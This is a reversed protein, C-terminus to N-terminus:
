VDFSEDLLADLSEDFSEDRTENISREFSGEFEEDFWDDFVEIARDVRTALVRAAVKRRLMDLYSMRVQGSTAHHGVADTQVLSDWAAASAITTASSESLESLVDEISENPLRAGRRHGRMATPSSFLLPTGAQAPLPLPVCTDCTLLLTEMSSYLITAGGPMVVVQGPLDQPLGAQADVTLQDEGNGGLLVLSSGLAPTVDFTDDGDNGLIGGALSGTDTVVFADSATGGQLIEVNSFGGGVDSAQGSDAGDVTYSSPVNNGQLRDVGAQGDISGSLSGGSLWFHDNQDGGVLNEIRTFEAIGVLTGADTGDIVFQHSTGDPAVLTDSGGAGDLGGSSSGGAQVQFTDNDAGGVLREIGAFTTVTLLTGSDPGTLEFTSAVDDAQLTDLGGFVDAIGGTLTGGQIVFTDDGLGGQLSEISTFMTVGGANGSDAGTVQFQTSVFGAQLTDNGGLGDIQGVFPQEFLIFTDDLANGTLSEVGVFQGLGTAFGHFPGLVGFTNAVNDALFQDNGGEGRFTGSLTGGTLQLVDDQANGTLNEVDVFSAIGTASGSNTGTVSFLNPVNDGVFTDDGLGGDVIGTLTAGDLVFRDDRQNGTLNEISLFSGLRTAIGADTSTVVFETPVDAAVLTDSGAQGDVTGTLSGLNLEFRDSQANGTLNEIRLFAGVGTATGEDDALLTFVNPVNDGTLTDDGAGGDVTGALTGGALTFQDIGAGGTLNEVDVFTGIGTATGANIGTVTWTRDADDGLITDNDAGGAIVGSVTGGQRFDFTDDGAGSDIGGTLQGGPLFLFTDDGIGGQLNEIGTFEVGNLSGTNIGSIIWLNTGDGSILTDNGAGGILREIHLGPHLVENAGDTVLVQSGITVTLDITVASFDLVDDTGEGAFEWVVNNGFDDGFEYSDNGKGGILIDNGGLGLLRDDGDNGMLVNDDDSGRITDDFLTGIVNEFLGPLPSEVTQEPAGWRAVVPSTTFMPPTALDVTVADPIRQFDLTDSGITEVIQDNDGPNGPVFVYTDDGAAGQMIDSGARGDLLNDRENGILLDDGEGGVMQELFLHQDFENTIVIRVGSGPRQHGAIQNTITFVPSAGSLDVTVPEDSALGDFGKEALTSFYLRDYIGEDWRENTGGDELEVITDTETGSDPAPGFYYSDNRLQGVLLDDGAMGFLHDDDGLSLICPNVVVNDGYMQDNGDMGYMWDSGDPLLTHMFNGFDVESVTQNTQSITVVHRGTLPFSLAYDDPVVERVSYTGPPVNTFSYNGNADTVRFPEGPGLEGDDNLDLYITFGALGPEAPDRDGGCDQDHFKTGEIRGNRFNGFDRGYVNEGPELTVIYADDPGQLLVTAGPELPTAVALDLKGDANLDSAVLGAPGNATSETMPFTFSRDANAFFIKLQDTEADSVILDPFGDGDLDAAEMGRPASLQGLVLPTAAFTVATASSTGFWVSVTGGTELVAVDRNGDQDFDAILLDTTLESVPFKAVSEFTEDTLQQWVIVTNEKRDLVVLDQRGDHNMDAAALAAPETMSLVSQPSQLEGNGDNTMWAVIGMGPLSIAVDPYTDGNFDAVALGAPTSELLYTKWLAPLGSDDNQLTVVAGPEVLTVVLDLDGDGDLDGVTMQRPIGGLAVSGALSYQGNGDNHLVVISRGARDLLALDMDDDDDLDIAVVDMPQEGALYDEGDFTVRPGTQTFGAQPEERVVYTGGPLDMFWYEGARNTETAPEGEDRQGNNNLDLYITFGPVGRDNPGRVGDGEFDLYKTGHIGGRLPRNGFNRERVEAGAALEVIHVGRGNILDGLVVVNDIWFEQGGIAVDDISGVLQLFGLNDTVMSVAVSVGGLQQGNLSSLNGVISLDNNVRLNVSGGGDFFGLLLGVVQQGFDFDVLANNTALVTNTNGNGSFLQPQAFGTTIVQGGVNFAEVSAQAVWGEAATTDFTAGVPFFDNPSLDEFPFVDDERVQSTPFTQEWGPQLVEGVTYVGPALNMFWYEGDPGTLERPEDPDLQGNENLDLYITWGPLGSENADRRGNGNADLWKTGHISGDQPQNGFDVGRATENRELFVWHSTTEIYDLGSTGRNISLPKMSAVPPTQQLDVTFYTDTQGTSLLGHLLGDVPSFDIAGFIMTGPPPDLQVVTRVEGTNRDFQLIQANQRLGADLLYIEGAANIAIGSLDQAQPIQAVTTAASVTPSCSLLQGICGGYNLQARFLRNAQQSNNGSVFYADLLFDQQNPNFSTPDFALDGEGIAIPIVATANSLILQGVGKTVGRLEEILLLEGAASVGYIRDDVPSVQIGALNNEMAVVRNRDIRDLVPDLQFVAHDNYSAALWHNAPYTQVYSLGVDERVVYHNAPLESFEYNGGADTIDYPESREVIAGGIVETVIDRQGNNNLDLYIIVGAIPPEFEDRRGNGNTDEWKMGRIVSSGAGGPVPLCLVEDCVASVAALVNVEHPTATHTYDPGEIVLPGPHVATPEATPRLVSTVQTASPEVTVLGADAGPSFNGSADLSAEFPGTAPLVPLNGVYQQRIVYLDRFDVDGDPEFDFCADYKGYGPNGLNPDGIQSHFAFSFNVMDERDVTGNDNCDGPIRERRNGFNLRLADDGGDLVVLHRKLNLANPYVQQWNGDQAEAVLYTGPLLGTFLYSGAENQPTQPNDGSTITWPETPQQTVPDINLEGNMDLDLYIRFGPLGPENEDQLGNGNADLWKRGGITVERSNAFDLGEAAEGAALTVVHRYDGAAGPLSQVWDPPLLERVVYTGPVLGTFEYHGAENEPTSPDDHLTVTSPEFPELIGNNNLDLYITWGGLGVDGSPKSPVNDNVTRIGDANVDLWKTGSISATRVNGFDVRVIQGGDSAVQHSGNAPYVQSWGSQIVERVHYSGPLLDTFRYQGSEDVDETAPNDFSTVATPEIPQGFENRDLQGNNNLDLYVTWNGLGPEDAERQGNANLDHWKTGSIEISPANGFNLGLASSGSTLTVRHERRGSDPDPDPSTALWGDQMLEAVVYDGPVLGTFQYAGTADTLTSPEGDDLQGNQDLDLYITWGPLGDAPNLIGDANPDSMKRGAIRGLRYNGFDAGTIDDGSELDFMHLGLDAPGPFSQLWGGPLDEAVVYVGPVLNDFEYNGDADTFTLPEGFDFQRNLNSDLYIPWGAVGPESADRIGDANLDEFKTGVISGLKVNGFDIQAWTEAVGVEILHMGSVPATPQWGAQVVEIVQYTGPAVNDFRYEGTVSDTMAPILDIGNWLLIQWDGLVQDEPDRVGNGNHDEWKVGTITSLEINGFDVNRAIEVDEPQEGSDLALTYAIITQGDFTYAQAQATDGSDLTITTGPLPRTANWGVQQVESVLYIGQELSEVNGGVRKDTFSYLGSETFPDIAGDENLDISSTVTTALLNGEVDRLEITWGDLGHEDPDRVGDGDIDRFKQGHIEVPLNDFLDPTEDFCTEFVYGGSLPSAFPAGPQNLIYDLNQESTGGVMYNVGNTGCMPSDNDPGGELRDPTTPLDALAAGIRWAFMVDNGWDGYLNDAGEDGVLLDNGFDGHIFDDGDTGGTQFVQTTPPGVLPQYTFSGATLFAIFDVGSDDPPFIMPRPTAPSERFMDIFLTGVLGELAAYGVPLGGILMDHGDGGYLQDGFEAPNVTLADPPTLRVGTDAGGSIFDDGSGGRLIDNGADGLIFDRQPGGDVVDNGQQGFLRDQGTGGFIVDDGDGGFITDAGDDGKLTDNGTGGFIFDHGGGGSITDNGAEGFLDDDGADGFILDDGAGGYVLDRGSGAHIEDDGANGYILDDGSGGLILDNGGDGQLTDDGANGEIRDHGAYGYIEDDGANGILVNNANNGHIVDDAAGGTVNEIFARQGNVGTVLTRTNHRAITVGSLLPQPVSIDVILPDSAPLDAFNIEDTGEGVLEIVTDIHSANDLGLAAHFFYRDNGGQGRFTNNNRNDYFTDDGAGGTVDEFNQPDEIVIKRNRHSARGSLLNVTVGDDAALGGFDLRDIGGGSLDKIVDTESGGSVTDFFFVDNGMGGELKDNGDGGWIQDNGDGGLVIDDGSGAHIVDDGSNGSIIDNGAGGFITDNGGSGEISDDGDGGDLTNGATDSDPGGALHDNGDGGLLTDAGRGGDLDDDGAGGILTDDGDDGRLQDNGAGGDLTDNGEGGILVDDGDEGYLEDDDKGGTLRDNGAGGYLINPGSGGTLIDDGDGGFLTVPIMVTPSITIEDNGGGAEAKISTVSSAAFKQVVGFGRVVYEQEKADFEVQVADDGDTAGAQRLSANPGINLVMEGGNLHALVPPPLPPCGVEFEFITARLLEIFKEFITIKAGFIKLGLGAYAELFASMEGRLEFICEIGQNARAILESIRFRGDDNVDNWGAGIEAGVGGRVGGWVLGFNLEAGAGFEAGMGFVPREPDDAFYFGDLFNNTVQLGYTDFGLKIDAFVSFGAFIEAYLPVPPIIPGFSVSWDFNAELRDHLETGLFDYTVLDVPQGFLLNFAMSPNDLLPFEVGVERLTSLIGAFFGEPSDQGVTNDLKDDFDESGAFAGADETTPTFQTSGDRPDKGTSLLDFNGFSIEFSDGPANAIDKVVQRIQIVIDIFEVVSAAGDGFLEILSLITIPDQGLLESVDSILPVEFALFELLPDLPELIEDIKEVIPKMVQSVYGGLDLTFNGFSVDNLQGMFPNPDGFNVNFEWDVFLDAKVSPLDPNVTGAELELDIMATINMAIDILNNFPTSTIEDLRLKAPDSVGSLNIDLNGSLQTKDLPDGGPNERAAIELFFLEVSLETGDQLQVAATLEIEPDNPDDNLLFAVGTAKDVELGIQIDYDLVLELGGSTSVDFVIADLGLDFNVPLVLQGGLRLQVSACQSGSTPILAQNGLTLDTFDGIEDISDVSNGDKDRLINLKAGTGAPSGAGLNEFLFSRLNDTDSLALLMPDLVSRFDAFFGDPNNLDGILPLESLIDSQLGADLVDLFSRIGQVMGGLDCSDSDSNSLESELDNPFEFYFSNSDGLDTLDIMGRVDFPTILPLNFPLNAALLGDIGSFDVFDTIGFADGGDFLESFPIINHPDGPSAVDEITFGVSAPLTPDPYVVRITAGGAPASDFVLQSATLTYESSHQVVGNVEVFAVDLVAGPVVPSVNFTTAPGAPTTSSSQLKKLEFHGNQVVDVGGIAGVTVDFSLGTAQVSANLTIATGTDDSPDGNMQDDFGVLFVRDALAVGDRLDVGFDFQFKGTFDVALEGGTGIEVPLVDPGIDFDFDLPIMESFNVDKTLRAIALLGPTNLDGDADEFEFTFDNPDLGL